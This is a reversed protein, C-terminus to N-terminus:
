AKTTNLTQNSATTNKAYEDYYSFGQTANKQDAIRIPKQKVFTENPMIYKIRFTRIRQPELAIVNVREFPPLNPDDAARRQTLQVDHIRDKPKQVLGKPPDESKQTKWKTLHDSTNLYNLGVAGALNM